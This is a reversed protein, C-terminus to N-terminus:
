HCIARSVWRPILRKLDEKQHLAFDSAHLFEVVVRGAVLRVKDIKEVSQRLIQSFVQSTLDKSLYEPTSAAAISEIEFSAEISAERIWSGVDGRSDISYDDM